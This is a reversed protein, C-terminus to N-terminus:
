ATGDAAVVEEGGSVFLRQLSDVRSIRACNMCGEPSQLAALWKGREM